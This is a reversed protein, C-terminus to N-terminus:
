TLHDFLRWIHTFVLLSTTRFLPCSIHMPTSFYFTSLNQFNKWPIASLINPLLSSSFDLIVVLYKGQAFPLISNGKLHPFYPPPPPLSSSFLVKIRSMHLQLYRNYAKTSSIFPCSSIHTQLKPTLDLSSLSFQSDDTHLCYKLGHIQILEGLSYLCFLSPRLVSGM